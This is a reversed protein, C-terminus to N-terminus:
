LIIRVTGELIAKHHMAKKFQSKKKYASRTEILYLRMCGISVFTEDQEMFPYCTRHGKLYKLVVRKM